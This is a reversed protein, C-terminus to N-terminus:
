YTYRFEGSALLSHCLQTWAEQRRNTAPKATDLSKEYENLFALSVEQEKVDASRSFALRFAYDIRAQDTSGSALVKNSMEAAQDHVFPSNMMYLAQTAVTTVDRQGVVLEPDAVDFISLFEPVLGRVLPLYASRYTVDKKLGDTKARRGVEGALQQAESGVPRQLDLKGSVALMSDRIVEADLRRRSMRWLYHNDPDAAYAADNHQSSLQYTRSLVIERILKKVSWGQESFRNALYDLLEPHTPPESLAGFNDVTGVIGAGFLHYWVRNVMVRATLPNTKNTMWVALQLRGSQSMNINPSQGVTLVSVYGRTVEPGLDKVEGRINVRCNMLRSSDKVGMVQDGPPAVKKELTEIKGKLEAVLAQEKANAARIGKLAAGKAKGGKAAKGDAKQAKALAERTKAVEAEAVKLEEKLKTLERRDGNDATPKKSVDVLSVFDGDYGTKNNGPKVGALVETSRFIGALAYYDTTPIPDFKHDHCRACAVSLGMVARTSVDIQEDAVDMLYQERNRENLGKPGLALFGTATLHENKEADNRAPMLDGAIQERIFVDYPKDANFSDYVYDRYRWAYPYAINREKGTSEGFRAVDLWHRGWREGYQPLSLLHDVVKEFANSSQDTVFAEVEEPAPPIGVLDMYARRILTHRDADAVPRLNKAVLGDVIYRDIETRSWVADKNAPPVVKVPQFSWHKRADIKNIKGGVTSSNGVRPDPAGMEVWKVLDAIAYDPLSKKPPMEMGDEHRISKILLSEDPKGPVVAPGSEGGKRIGDKTDLRLKGQLEKASASHCQYCNAVLVPRVKKEFFDNGAANGDAAMGITALLALFCFSLIWTRM